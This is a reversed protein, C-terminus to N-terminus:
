GARFTKDIVEQIDSLNNEIYFKTSRIDSHGMARAVLYIDRTTEYLRNAFGARFSHITLDNRIGARIKWQNFRNQAQRASMSAGSIRGRFFPSSPDASGNRRLSVFYANLISLLPSPVPQRRAIKNKSCRVLLISSAPDYDKVSLALAEARRIGTFAYVAFLAEDRLAHLDNSTRITGLFISVEKATIPTTPTSGANGMSLFRAPNKRIRGTEFSWKFFTRYVSRIKNMTVPLRNCRSKESHGLFSVAGNLDIDKIANIEPNGMLDALEELNRRYDSITGKTRGSADLHVVYAQIAQALTVRVTSTPINRESNFANPLM